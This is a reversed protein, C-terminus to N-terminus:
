QPEYWTEWNNNYFMQDISLFAALEQASMYGVKRRLFRVRNGPIEKAIITTPFVTVKCARTYEPYKEKKVPVLLFNNKKMVEQVQPNPWSSQAMRNCPNCGNMSFSLVFVREANVSSISCFLLAITLATM